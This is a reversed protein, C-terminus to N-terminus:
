KGAQQSSKLAELGAGAGIIGLKFVVPQSVLNPRYGAIVSEVEELEAIQDASLELLAECIDRGCSQWVFDYRKDSDQPKLAFGAPFYVGTPVRAALYSKSGDGSWFALIEALYANDSTRILRQTLVCATENVALAECNVTWQGFRTGNAIRMPAVTTTEQAGVETNDQATAALPATLLVGATLAVVCRIFKNM